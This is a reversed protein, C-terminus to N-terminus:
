FARICRVRGLNAKGNGLVINSSFYRSKSYPGSSETSSWYPKADSGAFFTSGDNSTATNNIISRNVFMQDLENLSPLYWDGYTKGDETVKLENCIRAAYTGNDDGIAVQSAINISTNAKGAYPGDGKAQTHGDTGAHWRMGKSQDEKAAILGHQRTEDVWFVIGGKAFDGVSYTNTKMAKWLYNTADYYYYGTATIKLTKKETSANSVDNIYLLEMKTAVM